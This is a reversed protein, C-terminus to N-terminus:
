KSEEVAAIEKATLGYLRYVLADIQSEFSSTDASASLTAETALIRNMLLIDM